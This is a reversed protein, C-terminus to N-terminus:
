RGAQLFRLARELVEDRGQRIGAITPRVLIDPVLGARQLQRGDPHRVDHGTFAATIGGPLVVATVDGNAGMTPSGIFKTGNAARLFLGTHEAQSISREDMLMVTQGRYRTEPWFGIPQVFEYTSRELTDPSMVLPRRFRAAAIGSRTALRPAITWATGQPYARMDFVIAKTDKLEAFMSDVMAPTLRELDVYGIAGPLVRFVPGGQLTRLDPWTRRRAIRVVREGGRSGIVTLEATSGDPGNLLRSAVTAELAQRTSSATYRALRNFRAKVEEGDVKTVVDGVTVGSRAIASDASVRVVVPVGEVFRVTVGPRAVGFYASLAGSRVSGHSDHIRAVMEAIGQAYELSDRASEMRAVFVPLLAGWDEGTLDKYPYFHQIASWWRYAAMVRYEVSPYQMAPYDRETLAKVTRPSVAHPRPPGRLLFTAARLPDGQQIVSDPVLESAGIPSVTETVRLVVQASDTLAMFRMASIGVAASPPVGDSVIVADGAEQLAIAIPPLLTRRNVVFAVRRAVAGSLPVVDGGSQNVFGVWYAGGLGAVQSPFGSHLRSREAPLSVPRSVLMADLGSQAFVFPLNLFGEGARLDLVIRKARQIEGRGSQIIQAVTRFNSLGALGVVLTSDAEWRLGLNATAQVPEARQQLVRTAPDRLANRVRPIAAVLASDWDIAGTALAPHFYKASSWVRGLSALRAIRASDSVQAASTAAPALLAGASMAFTLLVARISSM